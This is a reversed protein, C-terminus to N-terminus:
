QRCTGSDVHTLVGIIQKSATVTVSKKVQMVTKLKFYRPERLLAINKKISKKMKMLFCM